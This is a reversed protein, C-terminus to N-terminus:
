RTPTRPQAWIRAAMSCRLQVNRGVWGTDRSLCVLLVGAVCSRVADSDDRTKAAIAIPGRLITRGGCRCCTHFLGTETTTLSHTVYVADDHTYTVRLMGTDDRDLAFAQCRYGDM